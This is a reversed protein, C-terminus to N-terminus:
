MMAQTIRVKIATTRSGSRLLASRAVVDISVAATRDGAAPQGRLRLRGLHTTM